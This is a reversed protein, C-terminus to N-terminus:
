PKQLHRTWPRASKMPFASEESLQGMESLKAVEWSATRFAQGTGLHRAINIILADVADLYAAEVPESLRLTLNKDM